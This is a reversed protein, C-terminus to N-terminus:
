RSSCNLSLVQVKLVTHNPVNHIRIKSKENMKQDQFFNNKEAPMEELSELDLTLSFAKLLIEFRCQWAHCQDCIVGSAGCVLM